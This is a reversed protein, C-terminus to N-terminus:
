IVKYIEDSDPETIPFIKGDKQFLIDKNDTIKGIKTFKIGDIESELEDPSIILMCGSSLLRMPEIDYYKCIKKSIENVIIKEYDIICGKKALICMEYIAGFIGGETVDHMLSINKSKLIESEKLVSLNSVFSKAIEFEKDTLIAKLENEKELCIIMSGELSVEKSMYINFGPKIPSIKLYRQKDLKGIATISIIIRNVSDTIETHGGIIQVNNRVCEDSIDKMITYIDDETTDPPCLLTVTIAFPTAFSTAIDNLNIIVALKGINKSTATIPDSTISIINDDADFYGCDQGILPLTLIDDRKKGLNTYILKELQSINLKGNKM